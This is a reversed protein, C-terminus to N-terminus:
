SSLYNLNEINAVLKKISIESNNNEKILLNGRAM